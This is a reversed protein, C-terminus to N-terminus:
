SSPYRCFCLPTGKLIEMLRSLRQLPWENTQTLSISRTSRIVDVLAVLSEQTFARHLQTRNTSLSLQSRGGLLVMGGMDSCAKWVCEWAESVKAQLSADSGSLAKVAKGLCLLAPLSLNRRDLSVTEHVHTVLTCWVKSFSDLHMIKIVLFESIISGISQLALSQSEDWVDEPSQAALGSNLLAGPEFASCWTKISIADLLPFIIKWICDNWANLTLTAGYLRMAHFLIQIAGVRVEHRADTCLDLIELLCMWLASYELEMEADKQKAQISGLVSWLLSEIAARAIITDAQRGFQGLTKICLRLDEPSLVSVSDCILKLSQFAIKVLATYGCDDAYVLPLSKQCPTEQLSLTSISDVSQRRFLAAPICNSGLMEFVSVWEVVFTPGSAQLIQYLTELGMRRLEIHTSTGPIDSSAPVIQKYLIDFIRRQVKAQLDGTSSLNRPVAIIIEDLVRAAQVRISQPASSLGIIWLLHNTTTNWAVEPACYILRHFNLMAVSGLREV